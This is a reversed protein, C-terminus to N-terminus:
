KTTGEQRKSRVQQYGNKEDSVFHESLLVSLLVLVLVVMRMMQKGGEGRKCLGTQLQGDAGEKGWRRLGMKAKEGKRGGQEIM